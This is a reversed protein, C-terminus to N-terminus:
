ILALAEGAPVGARNMGTDVHIDIEAAGGGKAAASDLAALDESTAVSQRIGRRLIKGADSAAFPGFNVLPCRVGAERLRAAEGLKGTMLAAVGASELFRATEVLGHGYANAKVVGMVPVNARTRIRELNRGVAGLDVEIRPDRVGPAAEVTMPIRKSPGGCGTVSLSVLSAPVAATLRNFFQRRKM